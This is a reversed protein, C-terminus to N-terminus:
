ILVQPNKKDDSDDKSQESYNQEYKTEHLLAQFYIETHFLPVQGHMDINIWILFVGSAIVPPM